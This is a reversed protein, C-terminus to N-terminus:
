AAGAAKKAWHREALRRNMREHAEDSGDHFTGFLHDFILLGDGGGYNCEFYKHHLYHGYAGFSVSKGGVTFSEHGHHGQPASLSAHQLHYLVHLPHSPIIWHLIAGSFYLVHEVPHMSMGSWPGVVVNRHHVKHALQYLPRWHLLRHVAYFHFDRILPILLMFVVFWVPNTRLEVFPIYGNAFAWLTVVEYATWIPVGSALCWFINDALQSNFTFVKSKQALPRLSYKTDTGQADYVLFWLHWAGFLLVTLGLNRALILAIWWPEFSQMSSLAPTLYFWSVLPFLFFFVNWPWLYGPWGLFWKAIAGPRLPWKLFIPKEIVYPPRWDGHADRVGLATESM